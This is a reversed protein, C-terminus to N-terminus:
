GLRHPWGSRSTLIHTCTGDFLCVPNISTFQIIGPTPHFSVPFSSLPSIENIYHILTGEEVALVASLVENSQKEERGWGRM